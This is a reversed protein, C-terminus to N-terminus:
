GFSGNFDKKKSLKDVYEGSLWSEFEKKQKKSEKEEGNEISGNVSTSTTGKIGVRAHEL